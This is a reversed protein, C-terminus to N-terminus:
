LRLLPKDFYKAKSSLFQGAGTYTRIVGDDIPVNSPIDGGACGSMARRKVRGMLSKYSGPRPAPLPQISGLGTFHELKEVKLATSTSVM